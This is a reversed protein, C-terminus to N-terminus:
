TSWFGHNVKRLVPNSCFECGPHRLQIRKRRDLPASWPSIRWENFRGEHGAKVRQYFEAALLAGALTSVFAFPALVQKGEPSLSPASGCLAKFLTDYALGQIADASLHPHREQVRCAAASSVSLQRVDDLEVGLVAAIHRERAHEDPSHAYACAL